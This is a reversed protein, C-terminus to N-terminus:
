SPRRPAEDLAASGGPLTGRRRRPRRADSKVIKYHWTGLNPTGLWRARCRWREGWFTASTDRRPRSRGSVGERSTGRRSRTREAKEKARSLRVLRGGAEGAEDRLEMSGRHERKPLHHSRRGAGSPRARLLPLRLPDLMTAGRPLCGTSRSM